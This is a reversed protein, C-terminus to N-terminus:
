LGGFLGIKGWPLGAHETAEADMPALSEPAPAHTQGKGNLVRSRGDATVSFRAACKPCNLTFPPQKSVNLIKDCGPCLLKHAMRRNGQLPKQWSVRRRRSHDLLVAM